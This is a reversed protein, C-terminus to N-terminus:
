KKLWIIGWIILIFPFLFIIQSILLWFLFQIWEVIGMKITKEKTTIKILQSYETKILKPKSIKLDIIGIVNLGKKFGLFVAKHQFWFSYGMAWLSFTCIPFYKWFGTSIEWGAIFAEGKWTTNQKNLIHAIDHIHTVDKRFRPNPLTLIMGLVKIEFTDENIGGNEPIGNRKYFEALLKDLTM